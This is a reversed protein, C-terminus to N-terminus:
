HLHSRYRCDDCTAYDTHRHTPCVSSSCLVPLRFRDLHWKPPQSM